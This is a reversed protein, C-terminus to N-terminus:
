VNFRIEIVDGNEVVHGRDVVKVLGKKKCDNFNHCAMFDDFGVVDGKIFGRALDTHIAGACAVIDSGKAIPWAHVEKPGATYFFITGSKELALAILDNVDTDHGLCVVPKLSVPGLATLIQREEDTFQGDCLPQEQEMCALCKEMLKKEQDSDSRETRAECKEIDLILVDLIRDPPVAIVDVKVFEDPVLEVYFPTIKKPECKEVLANLRDDTYKVKGAELPLGSIGIRM